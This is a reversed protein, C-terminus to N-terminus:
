VHRTQNCRECAEVDVGTKTGFSDREGRELVVFEHHGCNVCALRLDHRTAHTYFSLTMSDSDALSGLLRSRTEATGPSIAEVLGVPLPILQLAAVLAFLAVPLYAWTWVFRFNTTVLLRVGLLAVLVTAAGIVVMESWADIAGLALPMFGLLAILIAEMAAGIRGTLPGVDVLGGHGDMAINVPLDAM